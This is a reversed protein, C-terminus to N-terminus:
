YNFRSNFVDSDGDSDGDFGELSDLYDDFDALWERFRRPAPDFIAQGVTAFRDVRAKLCDAFEKITLDNM